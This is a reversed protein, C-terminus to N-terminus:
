CINRRRVADDQHLKPGSYSVFQYHKSLIRTVCVYGATTTAGTSSLFAIDILSDLRDIEQQDIESIMMACQQLSYNYAFEQRFQEVVELTVIDPWDFEAVMEEFEPDPRLRRRKQTQCFKTLPTEERFQQLDEKYAKMEGKVEELHFEQILHDLSGCSLYNWHFSMIGFLESHDLAHYIASLHSELFQRHEDAVDPPMSVLADAVRSVAINRGELCERTARKLYEFREYFLTIKAKVDQTSM